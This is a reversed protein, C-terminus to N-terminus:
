GQKECQKTTRDKAEVHQPPEPPETGVFLHTCLASHSSRVAPAGCEAGYVWGFTGECKASSLVSDSTPRLTTSYVHMCEIDGVSEGMVEPCLTRGCTHCHPCDGRRTSQMNPGLLHQRLSSSELARCVHVDQAQHRMPRSLCQPMRLAEQYVSLGHPSVLLLGGDL